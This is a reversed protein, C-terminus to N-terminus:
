AEGQAQVAFYDDPNKILVDRPKSGEEPGIISAEELQDM